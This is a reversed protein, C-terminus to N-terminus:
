CNIQSSTPPFAVNDVLLGSDMSQIRTKLTGLSNVRTIFKNLKENALFELSVTVFSSEIRRFHELNHNIKIVSEQIKIFIDGDEYKNENEIAQIERYVADLREVVTETAEIQSSIIKSQKNFIEALETQFQMRLCKLNAEQKNFMDECEYFVADRQDALRKRM